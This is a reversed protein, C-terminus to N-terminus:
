HSGLSCYLVVTIRAEEKSSKKNEEQERPKLLPSVEKSKKRLTVLREASMEASSEVLHTHQSPGGVLYEWDEM